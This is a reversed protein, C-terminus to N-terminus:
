ILGLVLQALMSSDFTQASMLKVSGQRLNEAHWQSQTGRFMGQTIVARLKRPTTGAEIVIDGKNLLAGPVKPLAYDFADETLDIPIFDVEVGASTLTANGFAGYESSPEMKLQQTPTIRIGASSMLQYWGKDAPDAVYGLANAAAQADVGGTLTAAGWSLHTSAETTAISNGSTGPVVATVVLTTGTLAGATVQPHALTGAFYDTGSVGSANIAKKLNALTGAADAGIDVDNIAVPVTKFRYTISGVPVTDGDSVNTADSTLTGSAAVQGTTRDKFWSLRAKERFLGALDMFSYGPFAAAAARGYLEGEHAGSKAHLFGITIQGLPNPKDLGIDITPQVEIAGNYYTRAFGDQGYLTWSRDGYVRSGIAASVFPFLLSLSAANIIGHPQFTLTHKVGTVVEAVPGGHQSPVPATQAAQDITFGDTSSLMRGTTNDVLVAPGKIYLADSM